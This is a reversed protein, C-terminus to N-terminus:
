EGALDCVAALAHVAADIDRKERTGRGTQWQITALKVELKHRKPTGSQPPQFGVFYQSRARALAHTAVTELIDRMPRRRIAFLIAPRALSSFAGGGVHSQSLSNSCQSSGIQQPPWLETRPSSVAATARGTARSGRPKESVLKRSRCPPLWWRKHM